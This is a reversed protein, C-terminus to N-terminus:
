AIRGKKKLLLIQETFILPQKSFSQQKILSIENCLLQIIRCVATIIEVTALCTEGTGSIGCSYFSFLSLAGRGTAVGKQGVDQPGGSWDVFLYRTLVEM